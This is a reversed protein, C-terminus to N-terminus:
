NASSFLTRTSLWEAQGYRSALLFPRQVNGIDVSLVGLSAEHHTIVDCFIHQTVRARWIRWSAWPSTATASPEEDLLSPLCEVGDPRPCAASRDSAAPRRGDIPFESILRRVAEHLEAASAHSGIRWTYLPVKDGGVNHVYGANILRRLTDKLLELDVGVIKALQGPELSQQTLALRIRDDPDATAVTHPEPAPADTTLTGEALKVPDPNADLAGNRRLIELALAEQQAMKQEIETKTVARCYMPSPVSRLPLIPGLQVRFRPRASTQRKRRGREDAAFVAQQTSTSTRHRVRALFTKHALYRANIAM